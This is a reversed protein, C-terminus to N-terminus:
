PTPAEPETGEVALDVRMQGTGRDLVASVSLLRQGESVENTVVAKFIEDAKFYGIKRGSVPTFPVSM